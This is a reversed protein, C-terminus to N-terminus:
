VKCIFKILENELDISVLTFKKLSFYFENSGEKGESKELGLLYDTSVEFLKALLLITDLSPKRKGNEYQSFAASSVGLFDAVEKQTQNKQNRCKRIRECFTSM